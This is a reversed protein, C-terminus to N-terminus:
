GGNKRKRNLFGYFQVYCVKKKKNVKKGKEVICKKKLKKPRHNEERGLM